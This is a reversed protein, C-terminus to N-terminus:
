EVTTAPISLVARYRDGRYLSHAAEVPKGDSDWLTRSMVLLSVRPAMELLEAESRHAARSELIEDARSLRIDYRERLTQYLSLHALDVNDIGPFRDQSLWIQEIAVPLGDALRLRRLHFIPSGVAVALRSAVEPTAPITKAELVRSTPKMGLARMEATFGCLHTIDKEVKPQSVFTGQGVVRTAFGQSKLSQLAHRSTMRSVNYVRSLEEESPLADGPHLRGSKIMGLLQTQIQFYIPTFSNKDLPEFDWEPVTPTSKVSAPAPKNRQRSRQKHEQM